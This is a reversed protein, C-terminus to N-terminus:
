TLTLHLYVSSLRFTVQLYALPLTFTVWLYPSSLMFTIQLYFSDWIYALGLRYTIQLYGTPLIFAVQLYGLGLRFAVRIYTLQVQDSHLMLKFSVKVQVYLVLQFRFTDQIFVSGLYIKSHYTDLKLCTIKENSLSEGLGVERSTQEEYVYACGKEIIYRRLKREFNGELM